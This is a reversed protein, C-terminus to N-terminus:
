KLHRTKQLNKHVRRTRGHCGGLLRLTTLPRSGWAELRSSGPFAANGSSELSAQWSARAYVLDAVPQGRHSQRRSAGRALPRRIELCPGPRFPPLSAWGRLLQLQTPCPPPPRLRTVPCKLARLTRPLRQVGTALGCGGRVSASGSVRPSAPRGCGTPTHQPYPLGPSNRWHSGQKYRKGAPARDCKVGGM